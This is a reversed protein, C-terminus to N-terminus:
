SKEVEGSSRTPAGRGLFHPVFLRLVGMVVVLADLFAVLKDDAKNPTRAVLEHIRREQARYAAVLASLCGFVIWAAEAPHACIWAWFDM